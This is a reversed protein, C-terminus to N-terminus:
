LLGLVDRIGGGALENQVTHWIRASSGAGHILVAVNDGSGEDFYELQVGGAQVLAM